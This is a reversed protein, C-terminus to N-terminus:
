VESERRKVLELLPGRFNMLPQNGSTCRTNQLGSVFPNDFVVILATFDPLKIKIQSLDFLRRVQIGTIKQQHSAIQDM